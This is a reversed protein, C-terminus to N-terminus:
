DQDENQKGETNNREFLNGTLDDVKRGAQEIPAIEGALNLVAAVGGGILLQSPAVPSLRVSCDQLGARSIAGATPKAISLGRLHPGKEVLYLPRM